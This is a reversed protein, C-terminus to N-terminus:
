FLSGSPDLTKVSYLNYVDTKLCVLNKYYLLKKMLISFPVPSVRSQAWLQRAKEKDYRFIIMIKNRLLFSFTYIENKYHYFHYVKSTVYYPSKLFSRLPLEKIM